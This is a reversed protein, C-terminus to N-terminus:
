VGAMLTGGIAERDRVNVMAGIDYSFQSTIGQDWRAYGNGPQTVEPDLTSGALHRPASFEFLLFARCRAAPRGRWCLPDVPRAAVARATDSSQQAALGRAILISAIVAIPLRLPM